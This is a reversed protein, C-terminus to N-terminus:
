QMTSLPMDATNRGTVRVPYVSKNVVSEVKITDGTNGNALALAVEKISFGNGVVCVTVMEGKHIDLPKGFYSASLPVGSRISKLTIRGAIDEPVIDEIVLGPKYEVRQTTIDQSRVEEGSRLSRALVPIDVEMKVTVDVSAYGTVQAERNIFVVALTARGPLKGREIGEVTARLGCNGDIKFRNVSTQMIVPINTNVQESAYEKIAIRILELATAERVKKQYSEFGDSNNSNDNTNAAYKQKNVKAYVPQSSNPEAIVDGGKSVSVGINGTFDIDHSLGMDKLREVIDSRLITISEGQRPAPGLFVKSVRNSTDGKVTAIDSLKMYESKIVVERDLNIEVSAFAVANTLFLIVLAMWLKKM